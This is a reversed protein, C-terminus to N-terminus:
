GPLRIFTVRGNTHRSVRDKTWRGNRRNWVYGNGAYLEVHHGSRRGNAQVGGYGPGQVWVIDGPQPDTVIQGGNRIAWQATQQAGLMTPINFGLNQLAQTLGEACQVGSRCVVNKTAAEVQQPRFRGGSAAAGGPVTGFTLNVQGDPNQVPKKGLTEIAKQASLIDQRTKALQIDLQQAQALAANHEPTGPDTALVQANANKLQEELLTAYARQSSLLKEAVLLDYEKANQSRNSNFKEVDLAYKLVNLAHTEGLQNAQALTYDRRADIARIDAETKALNLVAQQMKVPFMEVSQRINELVQLNKFYPSNVEAWAIDRAAEQSYGAQVLGQQLRMAMQEPSKLLERDTMATQRMVEKAWDQAGKLEQVTYRGQISERNRLTLQDQAYQDATLDDFSQINKLANDMRKEEMKYESNLDGVARQYMMGWEERDSAFQQNNLQQQRAQEQQQFQFPQALSEFARGPQLLAALGAVGLQAENPMSLKAQEALEPRQAFLAELAQKAAEIRATQPDLQKMLADRQSQIAAEREALIEATSKAENGKAFLDTPGVTAAKSGAIHNKLAIQWAPVNLKVGLNDTQLTPAQAGPAFMDGSAQQNTITPPTTAGPAFANAPASVPSTVTPPTLPFANASTGSLGQEFPTPPIAPKETKGLDKPTQPKRM